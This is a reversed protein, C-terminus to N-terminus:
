FEGVAELGGEKPSLFSLLLVLMLPTLYKAFMKTPMVVPLRANWESCRQKRGYFKNNLNTKMFDGAFVANKV